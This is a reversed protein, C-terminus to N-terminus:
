FIDKIYAIDEEIGLPNHGKHHNRHLEEQRIKIAMFALIFGAPNMSAEYDMVFNFFGLSYVRGIEEGNKDEIIYNGKMKHKFSWSDFDVSANLWNLIVQGSTTGVLADYKQINAMPNLNITVHKDISGAFVSGKYLALKRLNKKDERITYVENGDPDYFAVGKRISDLFHFCVKGREPHENFAAEIKEETSKFFPVKLVLEGYRNTRLIGTKKAIEESAVGAIAAANTSIVNKIIGSSKQAGDIAVKTAAFVLDKLVSM